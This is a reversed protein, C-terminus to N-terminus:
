PTVGGNHARAISEASSDAHREVTPSHLGGGGTEARDDLERFFERAGREIWDLLLIIAATVAILIIIEGAAAM